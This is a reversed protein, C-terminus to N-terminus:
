ELGGTLYKQRLQEQKGMNIKVGYGISPPSSRKRERFMKELAGSIDIATGIGLDVPNPGAIDHYLEFQGVRDIVYVDAGVRTKLQAPDAFYMERASGGVEVGHDQDFSYVSADVGLSASTRNQAPNHLPTVIGSAGDTWDDAKKRAVDVNVEGALRIMPFWQGERYFTYHDYTSLMSHREHDSYKGFPTELEAREDLPGFSARSLWEYGDASQKYAAGLQALNAKDEYGADTRIDLYVDGVAPGWQHLTGDSDRYGYPYFHGWAWAGWVNTNAEDWEYFGGASIEADPQYEYPTPSYTVPTPVGPSVAVGPPPLLLLLLKKKLLPAPPTPPAVPPTPPKAEKWWGLNNCLDLLIVKFIDENKAFKYLDGDLKLHRYKKSVAVIVKNFIQYNGYTLQELEDGNKLVYRGDTEGKAIRLKLEVKAWDPLDLKDIMESLSRKRGFPKAGPNRYYVVAPINIRHGIRLRRPNVGPNVQRIGRVSVHYHRALKTFNDGKKIKVVHTEIAVEVAQTKLVEGPYILNKNRIVNRNIKFLEETGMGYKRAIRSLCDGKKVVYTTTNAFVSVPVLLFILAFIMGLRKM